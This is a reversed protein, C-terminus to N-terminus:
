WQGYKDLAYKITGKAYRCARILMTKTNAVLTSNGTGATTPYGSSIYNDWVTEGLTSTWYSCNYAANRVAQKLDTVAYYYGDNAVASSFNHGSNWNNDVWEEFDFHHTLMDLTPDSTHLIICADEIFHIAYGLYWDGNFQDGLEYYYKASKNNFGEPSEIEGSEQDINDHFDDDADGWVWFGLSCYLYAHSWQQNYGNDLGSQYVDPMDSANAITNVRSSSLGWSSAAIDTLNVHTPKQWMVSIEASEDPIIIEADESILEPLNNVQPITNKVETIQSCGAMLLVLIVGVLLYSAFKKM